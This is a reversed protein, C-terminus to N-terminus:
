PAPAATVSLIKPLYRATETWGKGDRSTFLQGTTTGFHVGCPDGGDACLAERLVSVYAREGPLGEARATWTAGADETEFVRLRGDCVARMHSSEEPIVWARDPERPDLAIGYGFDSPLDGTIETWGDGRDDSRYTGCHNQQYLRDPRAPHVRLAHVCQGAEPPPGPLFESRVGRNIPRWTAGADDSRYCGGASVAAYVRDSRRPDVQISHLALGGRAPQWASRTPHEDLSRIWRWTEGGDPSTFLGAPETGAWLRGPEDAGGPSVSWVAEVVRGSAEPFAPRGPLPNWSRGGDRTVHLHAGWAPHRVAAWGRRPDRPDMRAHYVEFGALQPGELRWSRRGPGSVARFLGRHTGVLLVVTARASLTGRLGAAAGM